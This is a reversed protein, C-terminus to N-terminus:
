EVQFRCLTSMTEAVMVSSLKDYNKVFFLANKERKKAAYGDSLWGTRFYRSKKFTKLDSIQLTRVKVLCLDGVWRRRKIGM